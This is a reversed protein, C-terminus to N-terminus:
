HKVDVVSQSLRLSLPEEDKIIGVKQVIEVQTFVKGFYYPM